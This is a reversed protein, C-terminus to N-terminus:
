DWVWADRLGEAQPICGRGPGDAGGFGGGRAFFPIRLPRLGKLPARPLAEGSGAAGEGLDGKTCEESGGLRGGLSGMRARCGIWAGKGCAFLAGTKWFLCFAAPM